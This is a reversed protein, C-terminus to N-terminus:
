LERKETSADPYESSAKIAYGIASTDARKPMKSKQGTPVCRTELTREKHTNYPSVIVVTSAKPNQFICFTNYIRLDIM